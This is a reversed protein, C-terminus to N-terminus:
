RSEAARMENASRGVVVEEIILVHARGCRPCVAAAIEEPALEPDGDRRIITVLSPCDGSVVAGARQELRELRGRMTM